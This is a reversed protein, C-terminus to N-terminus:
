AELRHSEIVPLHRIRHEEMARLVGSVDAASDVTVPAGRALDGATVSRPDGGAAVCRIV